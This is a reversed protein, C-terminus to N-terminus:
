NADFRVCNARIADVWAGTRMAVGLMFYNPPCQLRVPGGGPGGQIPVDTARAAGGWGAIMVFAFFALLSCLVRTITAGKNQLRQTCRWFQLVRDNVDSAM